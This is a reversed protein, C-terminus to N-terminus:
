KKAHMGKVYLENVVHVVKRIGNTMGRSSISAGTIGRIDKKLKIRDSVTKGRFQKLFRRKAIPRGRRERFELVVTDIVQGEPNLSLVYYIPGWKGRVTDQIAYGVIKGNATGTFITFERDLEPDLTLHAKEEIINKQADTLVVVEDTITQAEPLVSKLAEELTTLVVAYVEQICGLTISVNQKLIFKAWMSQIMAAPSFFIFAIISITSVFVKKTIRM